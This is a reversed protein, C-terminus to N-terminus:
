KRMWLSEAIYFTGISILLFKVWLTIPLLTSSQFILFLGVLGALSALYIDQNRALQPQVFRLCFLGIGVIVLLLGLFNKFGWNM